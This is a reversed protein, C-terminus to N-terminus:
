ASAPKRGALLLRALTEALGTLSQEDPLTIRLQPRGSDDRDVCEALGHQLQQVVAPDPPAHDTSVLEGLMQFAAGLLQGGAAAVRERRDALQQVQESVQQQSSVNVPASRQHGLLQEMRRKLEEMGSHIQVEDVESEADLAALALDQKTALTDLLREELTDETVLLYVDVPHKVGMRHARAIRQELVAPNWPLDVNIVTNAAQLNLGTAGANSMLIVRCDPDEQFRRVIEPRKSQNVGGDLRVYDLGVRELLPEILSLMTTWESFIIIKRDEHQALEELMEALRDLKSSFGPARKDVLYSSNASMRAALLARRLNLMDVETIFKKSTIRMVTQMASNHLELQEATPTIRVISTTRDPLEDLVSARTRRLLVPKLKDRIEDLHRYGEVRGRDDVIRHRHFFEYAPGLRQEDVFRTVTFLDDLRNELPTGTLVLAFRSTLSRVVQSTKSEWNKIRQGEDLIILDWPVQEVYTLDRLLQEYNCLTFFAGSQYQQVRDVHRGLIIQTDRDCFRRVEDRWQSKLSAPCVVLVRSM